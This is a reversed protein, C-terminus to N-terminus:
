SKKNKTSKIAPLFKVDSLQETYTLMKTKENYEINFEKLIQINAKVIVRANKLQRETNTPYGITDLIKYLHIKQNEKQTIFFNIIAKILGEGRGKILKRMKKHTEPFYITVDSLFHEVYEKPLVIGFEDFKESYKANKILNYTGLLNGENDWRTIVLDRIELLTDMLNKKTLKGWKLGMQVSLQYLSFFIAIDGSKLPIIMKDKLAMIGSLVDNHYQTLLRNRLQIKGWSTKRELINGNKVFEKYLKSNKNIKAIPLFPTIRLEKMSQMSREIKEINKQPIINMKCGKEFYNTKTM